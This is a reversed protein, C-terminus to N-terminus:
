AIHTLYAFGAAQGLVSITYGPMLYFHYDENPAIYFDTVVAPDDEELTEYMRLTIAVNAIVRFRFTGVGPNQLASTSAGAAAVALRETDGLLTYTHM